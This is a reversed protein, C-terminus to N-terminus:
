WSASRHIAAVAMRRPTGRMEFSPMKAFAGPSVTSVKVTQNHRGQQNTCRKLPLLREDGPDQACTGLRGSITLCPASRWRLTLGIPQGGVVAMPRGALSRLALYEDGIIM